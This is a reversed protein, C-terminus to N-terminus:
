LPYKSTWIGGAIAGAFAAASNSVVMVLAIIVPIDKRFGIAQCMAAGNLMGGASIGVLVQGMILAALNESPDHYRYLIGNGLLSMSNTAVFVWKPRKTWTALLGAFVNFVGMLISPTLAVYTASSIKMNGAVIMYILMYNQVLMM